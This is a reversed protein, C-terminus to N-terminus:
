SLTQDDSSRPSLWREPICGHHCRLLKHDAAGFMRCIAPRINWVSCSGDKALMSCNIKAPLEGLPEFRKGSKKEIRDLELQTAPVVNCTDQCLKKCQIKPIKAYIRELAQIPTERRIEKSHSKRGM